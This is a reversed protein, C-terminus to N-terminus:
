AATSRVFSGPERRGLGFTWPGFLMWVCFGGLLAPAAYQLGNLDPARVCAAQLAFGAIRTVAATVGALAIRGGYGFRSFGGGIIATVALLMFAVDYLPASLRAHAEASLANRNAREWAGDAPFLLEHLYRDSAKYIVTTEGALLSQLDLSYRDFSLFSLQGTTTRAETEGHMLVLVPNGPNRRLRGERALITTERGDAQIQDLFLNHIAGDDTVSQVYVTVGPGPHTFQGPRILAGLIDTRASELTERLQRYCLPQIWLSVALSLVGAMAALRLAPSVVRWRSAGNAFCVAIENERHLRNVVALGAILVAVPVVLVILQPMALIVVKAFILPSQRENLLLGIASLAESLVALGSLALTALVTPGLLQRFIYRDILRM